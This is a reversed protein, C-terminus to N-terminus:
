SRGRAICNRRRKSLQTFLNERSLPRIRPHNRIRAIGETEPLEGLQPVLVPTGQKLAYEITALTGSKAGAAVVVLTDSLGAILRNRLRFLYRGSEGGPPIESVLAGGRELIRRLLPKHEAPYVRDVATGSVWWTMGGAKLAGHHAASDVGRAGGSVVVFGREASQEGLTAAWSLAEKSARRSGVIGIRPRSLGAHLDGRAFLAKVVPVLVAPDEFVESASYHTFTPLSRIVSPNNIMVRKM